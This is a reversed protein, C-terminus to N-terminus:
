ISDVNVKLWAADGLWHMACAGDKGDMDTVWWQCENEKCGGQILPCFGHEYM